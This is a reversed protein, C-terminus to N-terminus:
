PRLLAMGFWAEPAAWHSRQTFQNEMELLEDQMGRDGLFTRIFVASRVPGRRRQCGIRLNFSICEIISIWFIWICM